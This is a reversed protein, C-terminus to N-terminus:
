EDKQNELITEGEFLEWRSRMRNIAEEPVGHVNGWDGKVTIVKVEYDYKEALKLYHNMEWHQTFTNAVNITYYEDEMAEETNDQCQGHADKLHAPDFKYEGDVMFFQDAEFLPGRNHKEVMTSKGSGPLGRWLYLIKQHENM